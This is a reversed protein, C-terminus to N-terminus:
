FTAEGNKSILELIEDFESGCYGFRVCLEDVLYRDSINSRDLRGNLFLEYTGESVKVVKIITKSKRTRGM